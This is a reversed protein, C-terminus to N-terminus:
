ETIEEEIGDDYEGDNEEQEEEGAYFREQESLINQKIYGEADQKIKQSLKNINLRKLIKKDHDKTFSSVGDKGKLLEMRERAKRFDQENEDLLQILRKLELKPEAARMDKLIKKLFLRPTVLSEPFCLYNTINSYIEVLENVIRKFLQEYFIHSKLIQKGARVNITFDFQKTSSKDRKKKFSFEGLMEFLFPTIPIYLGSKRSFDSLCSILHLRFPAYKVNPYFKLIGITVEILPHALRGLDDKDPYAGIASFWLRIANLFQWNYIKFINERTREKMCNKLHLAISRIYSFGIMYASVKNQALLEVFCNIMFRIQDYKFWNVDRTSKIFVLYMKRYITEINDQETADTCIARLNLFAKFKVVNSEHTGWFGILTKMFKRMYVPTYSIIKVLLISNTLIYTLINKDHTKQLLKMFNAFYSNCLIMAKKTLTNGGRKLGETEIYKKLVHPIKTLAFTIIKNYVKGDEVEYAISRRKSQKMGEDSLGQIIIGRFIKLFMKFAQKSNQNVGKIVMKLKASDIIVKEEPGDDSDDRPVDADEDDEGEEDFEGELDDEGDFGDLKAFEGEQDIDDDGQNILDEDNEDFEDLDEGELNFDANEDFEDLDEGEPPVFEEDFFDQNEDNFMEMDDEEADAFKPQQSKKTKKNNKGFSGKKGPM